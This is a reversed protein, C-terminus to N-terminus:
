VHARGIEERYTPTVNYKTTKDTLPDHVSMVCHDLEFSVDGGTMKWQRVSILRKNLEPVYLVNHMLVFTRKKPNYIDQIFVKVTGQLPAQVLVGTAVKVTCESRQSDGIIDHLYPKM